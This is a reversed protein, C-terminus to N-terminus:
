DDGAILLLLIGVCAIGALILGALLIKAGTSCAAVLANVLRPRDSSMSGYRSRLDLGMAGLLIGLVVLGLFTAVYSWSERNRRATEDAMRRWEAAQVTDQKTELTAATEREFREVNWNASYINLHAIGLFMQWSVALTAIVAMMRRMTFRLRPLRMGVEQLTEGGPRGVTESGAITM